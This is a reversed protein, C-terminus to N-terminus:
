INGCPKWEIMLTNGGVSRQKIGGQQWRELCIKKDSNKVKEKQTDLKVSVDLSIAHAQAMPYKRQVEGGVLPNIPESEVIFKDGVEANQSKPQCRRTSPGDM